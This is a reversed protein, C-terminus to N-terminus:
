DTNRLKLHPLSPLQKQCDAWKEVLSTVIYYKTKGKTWEGGGACTHPPLAVKGNRAAAQLSNKLSELRRDTLSGECHMQMFKALTVRSADMPESRLDSQSHDSKGGSSSNAGSPPGGHTLLGRNQLDHKILWWWTKLDEISATAGVSMEPVGIVSCVADEILYELRRIATCVEEPILLRSVRFMTEITLGLVLCAWPVDAPDPVRWHGAPIRVLPKHGEAKMRPTPTESMFPVPARIVSRGSQLSDQYAKLQAVAERAMQHWYTRHRSGMELVERLERKWSATVAEDEERVVEVIKWALDNFTWAALDQRDFGRQRILWEHIAGKFRNMGEPTPEWWVWDQSHTQGLATQQRPALAVSLFYCALGTFVQKETRHFQLPYTPVEIDWHLEVPGDETSVASQPELEQRSEDTPSAVEPTDGKPPQEPEHPYKKM